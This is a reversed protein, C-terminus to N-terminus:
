KLWVLEPQFRVGTIADSTNTTGSYTVTNFHLTSKSITTYAM